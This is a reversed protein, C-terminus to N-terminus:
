VKDMGTALHFMATLEQIALPFAERLYWFLGAQLVPTPDGISAVHRGNYFTGLAHASDEIVFLNYGHAIAKIKAIDCPQGFLHTVIIAKTKEDINKEIKNIDIQYTRADADVFVPVFGEQLLMEPVGKFNYASVIIKDGKELGLNKLILYLAFRGSSVAVAEKAGVYEKFKDEFRKIYPGKKLAKSLILSIIDKIERPNIIISRKPIKRFLM